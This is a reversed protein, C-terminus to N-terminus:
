KNASNQSDNILKGLVMGLVISKGHGTMLNDLDAQTLNFLSAVNYNAEGSFVCDLDAHTIQLRECIRYDADFELINRISAEQLDTIESVNKIVEEFNADEIM